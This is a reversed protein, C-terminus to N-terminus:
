LFFLLGIFNKEEEQEENRRERTARENFSQQVAPTRDCLTSPSAAQLPLFWLTSRFATARVTYTSSYRFAFLCLYAHLTSVTSPFCMFVTHLLVCVCELSYRVCAQLLDRYIQSCSEERVWHPRSPLVVSQSQWVGVCAYLVFVCVCFSPQCHPFLLFYDSESLFFLIFSFFVLVSLFSTVSSPGCLSVRWVM